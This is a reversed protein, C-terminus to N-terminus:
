GNLAVEKGDGYGDSSGYGYGSGSGYGYGNGYGDGNGYGYGYGDGDGYGYGSGSLVWIPIVGWDTPVELTQVIDRMGPEVHAWLLYSQPVDVLETGPRLAELADGCAGLNRAADLMEQTIPEAM